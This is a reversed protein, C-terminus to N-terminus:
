LALVRKKYNTMGPGPVVCATHTEVGGEGGGAPVVVSWVLSEEVIDCIGMCAEEM